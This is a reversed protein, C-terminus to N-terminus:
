RVHAYERKKLPTQATEKMSNGDATGEHQLAFPFRKKSSRFTQRPAAKAESETISDVARCPISNRPLGYTRIHPLPRRGEQGARQRRAPNAAAYLLSRARASRLRTTM